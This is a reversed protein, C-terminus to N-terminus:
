QGRVRKARSNPESAPDSRWKIGSHRIARNAPPRAAVGQLLENYCGAVVERSYRREVEQRGLGGMRTCLERDQYLRLLAVALKDASEPEVCLGCGTEEVLNWVDSRVVASVLLPRGSAMIEYVKSPM